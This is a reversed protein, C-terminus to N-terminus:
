EDGYDFQYALKSNRKLGLEALPVRTDNEDEHRSARASRSRKAPGAKHCEPVFPSDAALVAEIAPVRTPPMM